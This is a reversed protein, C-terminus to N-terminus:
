LHRNAARTSMVRRSLHTEARHRSAAKLVILSSEAELGFAKLVCSSSVRSACRLMGACLTAEEAQGKKEDIGIKQTREPNREQVDTKNSV